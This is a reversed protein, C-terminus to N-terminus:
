GRGGGAGGGCVRGGGVWLLKTDIGIRDYDGGMTAGGEDLGRM